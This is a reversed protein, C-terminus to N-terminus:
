HKRERASKKINTQIVDYVEREMNTEIGFGVGETKETTTPERKTWQNRENTEKRQLELDTNMTV